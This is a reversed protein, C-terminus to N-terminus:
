GHAVGGGDAGPQDGAVAPEPEVRCVFTLMHEQDCYRRFAEEHLEGPLMTISHGTTGGKWSGKKRGVEASFRLDLSRSIQRPTVLSLWRWLGTGRRWEREEIRTTAIIQEADYDAFLFKVTPCAEEIAREADWQNRWAFKGFRKEYQRWDGKDALRYFFNGKADFLDRRIHRQARWPYFWCWSRTTDSSHTQLGYHLHLVGEASLFGYQRETEDWYWDRGLRTITDADWGPVVKRRHPQLVWQPLAIIMTFGFASLRLHAGPYEGHGSGLMVAFPRYHRDKSFTFRGWYHDNNSWRIARM